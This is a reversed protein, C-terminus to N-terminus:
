KRKTIKGVYNIIINSHLARKDFFKEKSIKTLRIAIYPEGFSETKKELVQHIETKLKKSDTEGILDIIEVQDQFRKIADNDINEIFPIAGPANIIRHNESIGHKHLCQLSRGSFHGRIDKGCIVVFRINPNSIVNAVIKEIGINETKLRGYIAVSDNPIFDVNLLVVAVSATPDVSTFDGNWPYYEEDM